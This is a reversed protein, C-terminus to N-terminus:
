FKGFKFTLHANFSNLDDKNYVTLGTSSDYFGLSVDSTFRYSAGVALRFFRTLNLEIDLGPEFVFFEDWGTDETLYYDDYEDYSIGGLGVVMPITFHIPKKGFFIPELLFGGYAGALSSWDDALSYDNTSETIFVNAALGIAVSHGVIWAGRAGFTMADYDAVQTYGVRLGGYGGYSINDGFLTSYGDHKVDDKEQAFLKSQTLTLVLVVAVFASLTKTVHNRKM